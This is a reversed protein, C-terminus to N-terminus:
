LYRLFTRTSHEFNTINEVKKQILVGFKSQTRNQGVMIRCLKKIDCQMIPTEIQLRLMRFTTSLRVNERSYQVSISMKVQLQRTINRCLFTYYLYLQQSQINCYYTTTLVTLRCMVHLSAQGCTKFCQPSISSFNYYVTHIYIYIYIYLSSGM